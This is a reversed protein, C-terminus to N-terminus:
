QAGVPEPDPRVAAASGLRRPLFAACVGGALACAAILGYAWMFGTGAYVPAGEVLSLVNANLLVFVVTTGVGAMLTRSVEAISSSVVQSDAPVSAIVLNPIAAGALGVGLHVVGTAILVVLEDGRGLGMALVGVAIVAAAAVMHVKAGTRRATLGVILGGAVIGIGNIVGFVAYESATMGFGYDGGMERPTMAMIALISSTTTGVGYVLGSSLVTFLLAPRRLQRVNILPEPTRGAQVLWTVFMAAGLLLLVLTGASSWGWAPAKSVAVLVAAVSGGLLLAGVLDLRSDHSRVASEPVVVLTAAALVATLVTVFWFAGSVGHNDILWGALFPQLVVVIGTGTITVSVAFPVIRQPFVDRVLSYCLFAVSFIAGQLARGMLFVPYSSAIASLISGVLTIALVIMLMRKKGHMDALKGVLPMAISATLFAITMTWGAQTTAFEATIAPLATGALVSSVPIIESVLILVVLIAVLRPTWQHKEDVAAAAPPGGGLTGTM